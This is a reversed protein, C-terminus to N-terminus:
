ELGAAALLSRNRSARDRSKKNRRVTPMAHFAVTTAAQAMLRARDATASTNVSTSCEPGALALGTRALPATIFSDNLSVAGLVVRAQKPKPPRAPLLTDLLSHCPRALRDSSSGGVIGGEDERM